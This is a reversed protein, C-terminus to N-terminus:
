FFNKRLYNEDIKNSKYKAAQVKVFVETLFQERTNKKTLKKNFLRDFIMNNGYLKKTSDSSNIEKALKKQTNPNNAKLEM